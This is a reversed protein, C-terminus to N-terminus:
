LAPHAWTSGAREGRVSFLAPGFKGAETYIM